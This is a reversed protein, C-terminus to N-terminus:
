SWDTWTYTDTQPIIWCLQFTIYSRMITLHEPFERFLIVDCNELKELIVFVIFFPFSKFLIKEYSIWDWIVLIKDLFLTLFLFNLRILVDWLFYIWKGPFFFIFLKYFCVSWSLKLYNMNKQWVRRIRYVRRILLCQPSSPNKKQKLYFISM